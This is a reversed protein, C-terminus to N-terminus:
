KPVRALIKMIATNKTVFDVGNYLLFLTSGM